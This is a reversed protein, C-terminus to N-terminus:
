PGTGKRVIASTRLRLLTYVGIAAIGIVYVEGLTDLARFDVLIVNVVNRGFGEPVAREAHFASVSDPPVRQSVALALVSAVLGFVGAVLADLLRRPTRTLTSYRPLHFIVLVFIIVILTEIAFQTMAVDPAGYLGFILAITFGVGGILAVSALASRQLTAAIASLALVLALALDLPTADALDPSLTQPISTRAIAASAAAIITLLTVRVYGQLSGHQLLRTQFSALAM